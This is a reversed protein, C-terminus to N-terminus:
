AKPFRLFKSIFVRHEVSDACASISSIDQIAKNSYQSKPIQVEELTQKRSGRVVKRATSIKMFVYPLDAESEVRERGGDSLTIGERTAFSMVTEHINHFLRAPYKDAGTGAITWSSGTVPFFFGALRLRGEILQLPDTQAFTYDVEYEHGPM